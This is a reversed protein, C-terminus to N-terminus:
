SRAAAPQATKSHAFAWYLERARRAVPGADFSRSEYRLCPVVKAHNGTSFVEDAELIEDPRISRERVEVGDGRLLGIVRQRTIGNLFTGNPIPTHVVGDKVFLINQATLEAVNGVLDCMVANDFGRKKADALALGALPYLCAAKAHTPAQEPSPRRYISLCASFGKVADPLPMRTIVLAFKTSAPDPLVLGSEAWFMPRIYLPTGEPFKAIGERALAEIQEATIAPQLHLGRASRIVRQCHLDLDPAVGEFARAGDFVVNALWAANTDSTMIPVASGGWQGDVYCISTSAHDPM